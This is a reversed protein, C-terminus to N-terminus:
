RRTPDVPVAYTVVVGPPLAGVGVVSRGFPWLALVSMKFAQIGFPIGIITVCMVVAAIAYGVALWIGALVLWLLNGVIRLPGM